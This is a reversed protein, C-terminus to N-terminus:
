GGAAEAAGAVTSPAVPGGNARARFDVLTYGVVVSAVDAVATASRPMGLMPSLEGFYSGPLATRLAERSGDFLERELSIAGSEVTYILEGHDGQRFLVDGAALEFREPPRTSAMTRPTLEVVRDAIPVLREDHTSVLVIRGPRALTRLLEIVGEVAIFDLHATPEDALIVAPDMILARAIAVRQQQGGSLDAPRHTLRDGLGLDELLTVARERADRRPMGAARAPAMVNEVANLSPLLNFAQFVVGVKRRRYERLAAGSLTTIEEGDLAISGSAPTLLSAVASLLSTKGCGSAGLLLVLEGDGLDLDLGDIPRVRYNGSRYEISLDRVTLSPV